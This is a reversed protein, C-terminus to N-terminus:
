LGNQMRLLKARDMELFISRRLCRRPFLPRRRRRRCFYIFVGRFDNTQHSHLANFLAPVLVLVTYHGM